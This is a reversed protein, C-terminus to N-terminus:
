NQIRRVSTTKWTSELYFCESKTRPHCNSYKVYKLSHIWYQEVLDQCDFHYIRCNLLIRCFGACSPVFIDHETREFIKYLYIQQNLKYRGCLLNIQNLQYQSLLAEKLKNETLKRWPIIFSILSIDPFNSEWIALLSHVPHDNAVAM